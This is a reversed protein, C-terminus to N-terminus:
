GKRAKLIAQMAVLIEDHHGICWAGARLLLRGVKAWM